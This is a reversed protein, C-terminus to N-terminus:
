KVEPAATTDASNVTTDTAPSTQETPQANEESKQNNCAVFLALAVCASLFLKKM